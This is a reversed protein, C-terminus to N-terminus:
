HQAQQLIGIMEFLRQKHYEATSQDSQYSKTGRALVGLVLTPCDGGIIGSRIKDWEAESGWSTTSDQGIKMISM